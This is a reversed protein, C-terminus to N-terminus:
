LSHISHICVLINDLNSYEMLVSSVLNLDQENMFSVPHGQVLRLRVWRLLDEPYFSPSSLVMYAVEFMTSIPYMLIDHVLTSQVM